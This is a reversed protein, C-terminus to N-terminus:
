NKDIGVTGTSVAEKNKASFAREYAKNTFSFVIKTIDGSIFERKLKRIRVPQFYSTQKGKPRNLSIWIITFSLSAVLSIPVLHESIVTGQPIFLESVILALAVAGFLVLFVLIRHFINKPRRKSSPICERCFPLPFKFTIETGGGFLYTTVKTDQETREIDTKKGCNCCFDAPFAFQVDDKFKAKGALIPTTM